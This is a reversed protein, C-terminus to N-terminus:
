ANCIRVLLSIPIKTPHQCQQSARVLGKTTLTEKKDAMGHCPHRGTQLNQNKRLRYPGHRVAGACRRAPGAPFCWQHMHHVSSLRRHRRFMGLRGPLRGADGLSRAAAGGEAESVGKRLIAPNLFPARGAM